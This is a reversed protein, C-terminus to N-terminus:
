EVTLEAVLMVVVVGVDVVGIDIGGVLLIGIAGGELGGIIADLEVASLEAICDDGIPLILGAVLRMIEVDEVLLITLAGGGGVELLVEEAALTRGINGVVDFKRCDEL